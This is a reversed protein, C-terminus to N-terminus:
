AGAILTKTGADDMAQCAQTASLDGNNMKTINDNYANTALPRWLTTKAIPRAHGNMMDVAVNAHAAKTTANKWEPTDVMSKITPVGIQRRVM